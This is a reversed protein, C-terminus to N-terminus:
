STKVPLQITVLTGKPTNATWAVSGGFLSTRKRMNNTGMGHFKEKMGSGDDAIALHLVNATELVQVDITSPEAHKIANHIAEQVIRFLIIQEEPKMDIFATCSCSANVVGGANIRAIESELNTKFDFQQLWDKDLTRSLLRMEGIASTLTDTAANLSPLAQPQSLAVTRLLTKTYSLLQGINDHLEKGIHQFTAEQVEVQSQLLQQEFQRKFEILQSQHEKKKRRYILLYSISFAALIFFLITGTIVAFLLENDNNNHM